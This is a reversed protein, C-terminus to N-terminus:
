KYHACADPDVTNHCGRYTIRRQKGMVLRQLGSLLEDLSRQFLNSDSRVVDDLPLLLLTPATRTWPNIWRSSDSHFMAGAKRRAEELPLLLHVPTPCKRFNNRLSSDFVFDSGTFRPSYPDFSNRNARSSFADPSNTILDAHATSCFLILLILAYRTKIQARFV